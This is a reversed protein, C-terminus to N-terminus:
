RKALQPCGVYHGKSIEVLQPEERECLSCRHQCRPHFRCGLPPNVLSPPFGPISRCDSVSGDISPMAGLLGATYPHMPSKIVEELDGYEMMKGAYMVLIKSCLESIVNIDHTILMFSGKIRKRIENLLEILQAQVMVDLATFPEDAIILKPELAIAMAIAIRQKQGGSLQHPYDRGKHVPLGVMELLKRSRGVAEEKSVDRDHLLILESIQNEIKVLPNLMNMCGQFIMSIEKFRVRRLVDESAKALDLRGEFVVKGKVRWANPPLLGMITHAVTSKGCGSEGVIALAENAGIEFSIGGVAKVVQGGRIRYHTHLEDVKLLSQGLTEVSSSKYAMRRRMRTKMDVPM